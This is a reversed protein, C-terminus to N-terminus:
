PRCPQSCHQARARECEIAQMDIILLYIHKNHRPWKIHQAITSTKQHNHEIACLALGVTYLFFACGCVGNGLVPPGVTPKTVSTGVTGHRSNFNHLDVTHKGYACLSRMFRMRMEYAGGDTPLPFNHTRMERVPTKTHTHTHTQTLWNCDCVRAHM